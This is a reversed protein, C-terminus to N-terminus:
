LSFSLSREGHASLARLTLINNLYFFSLAFMGSSKSNHEKKDEIEWMVGSAAQQINKDDSNHLNELVDMGSDDKIIAKNEEDFSLMYLAEVAALGERLDTADELMAAM